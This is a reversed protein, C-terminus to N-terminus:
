GGCKGTNPFGDCVSINDYYQGANFTSNRFRFGDIIADAPDTGDVVRHNPLAEWADSETGFYLAMLDADWWYATVSTCNIGGASEVSFTGSSADCAQLALSTGTIYLGFRTQDSGGSCTDSGDDRFHVVQNDVIGGTDFQVLFDMVLVGSSKDTFLDDVVLVSDTGDVVEVVQLGEDDALPNPSATDDCDVSVEVSPTVGFDTTCTTAEFTTAFLQTATDSSGGVCDDGSDGSFDPSDGPAEWTANVITASDLDSSVTEGLFSGIGEDMPWYYQLGSPCGGECDIRCTVHRRIFAPSLATNWIQFDSMYGQFPQANTVGGVNGIIFENFATALTARCSTKDDVFLGDAYLICTGSGDHTMTWRKWVADDTDVFTLGSATGDGWVLSLDPPIAFRWSVGDTILGENAAIIYRTTGSPLADGRGYFSVTWAATMDWNSAAGVVQAYEGTANVYFYETQPDVGPRRPWIEGSAPRGFLAAALAILVLMLVMTLLPNRCM